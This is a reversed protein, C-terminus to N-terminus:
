FRTYNSLLLFWFLYFIKGLLKYFLLNKTDVLLGYPKPFKRFIALSKLNILVSFKNINDKRKHNRKKETSIVDM